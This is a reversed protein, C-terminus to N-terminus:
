LNVCVHTVAGIIKGDQLIPSGSMGQIIGNTKGLLEQDTIRIVLDKNGMLNSTQIAEIQISYDKAVGNICCRIWAEGKKVENKYGVPLAKTEDYLKYNEEFTGYIGQANNELITGLIPANLYDINGIMEGPQGNKGKVISLINSEYLRGNQIDIIENTDVDTVGHGLAAFNGHEDVYTLTGIGQADQRIWVGIKYEANQIQIPTTEVYRIQNERLITLKITNNGNEALMEKLSEISRIKEGNLELLYDGCELVGKAPESLNGHIDTVEGTEIVMVGKARIYIGVPIGLPMLKKENDKSSTQMVTDESHHIVALSEKGKSTYITYSLYYIFTCLYIAFIVILLKRYKERNM